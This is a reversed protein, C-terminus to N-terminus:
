ESTLGFLRVANLTTNIAVDDVSVGSFAAILEVVTPLACPENRQFSCHHLFQLAHPSVKEKVEKPLKKAKINPYMYPSDTEVLLRNLPIIGQRLAYQVGFELKDKWLSGTLGIYLGMDLYTKAEEATGTFCHVVAYTILLSYKKLIEIARWSCRSYLRIKLIARTRVSRKRVQAEFATLQSEQPSFNRNFDLGCEGIAVCEPELALKELEAISEDNFHKADHPHIGAAKARDVVDCLNRDNLCPNTLNAGIDILKYPAVDTIMKRIHISLIKLLLLM